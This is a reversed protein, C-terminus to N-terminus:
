SLEEFQEGKRDTEEIYHETARDIARAMTGYESYRDCLHALDGILDCIADGDEVGTAAKFAELATMAWEAREDNMEEPDPPIRNAQEINFTPKSM